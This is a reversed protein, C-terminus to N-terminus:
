KGLEFAKIDDEELNDRKLGKAKLYAEWKANLESTIKETLNMSSEFFLVTGLQEGSKVEAERLILNFKHTKAYDTIAKQVDKRIQEMAEKRMTNIHYATKELNKKYEFRSTDIKQKKEIYEKSGNAITQSDVDRKFDAEEKDIARRITALRDRIPKVKKELANEWDKRREYKLFIESYQVVGVKIKAPYIEQAKSNMSLVIVLALTFLATIIFFKKM